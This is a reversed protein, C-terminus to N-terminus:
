GNNRTASSIFGTAAVNQTIMFTNPFAYLFILYTLVYWGEHSGEPVLPLASHVTVKIIRHSIICNVCEECQYPSSEKRNVTFPDHNM